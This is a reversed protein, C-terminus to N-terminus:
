GDSHCRVSDLDPRERAEEASSLTSAGSVFAYRCSVLGITLPHGPRNPGSVTPQQCAYPHVNTKLIFPKMCETASLVAAHSNRSLNLCKFGSLSTSANPPIGTDNKKPSPLEWDLKVKGM